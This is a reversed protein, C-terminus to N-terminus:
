RFVRLIGILVMLDSVKLERGEIMGLALILLLHTLSVCSTDASGFDHLWPARFPDPYSRALGYLKVRMKM